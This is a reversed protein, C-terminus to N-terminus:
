KTTVPDQERGNKEARDQGGHVACRNELTGKQGNASTHHFNKGNKVVYETIKGKASGGDRPEAAINDPVNSPNESAKNLGGHM